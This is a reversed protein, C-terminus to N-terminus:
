KINVWKNKISSIKSANFFNIIKRSCEFDSTYISKKYIKKKFSRLDSAIDCYMNAFAEFFGDPHGVKYRNYRKRSAEFKSSARDIIKKEGNLNYINLNEPKIHEWELM